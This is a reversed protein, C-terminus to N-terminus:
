FKQTSIITAFNMGEVERVQGNKENPAYYYRPKDGGAIIKWYAAPIPIGNNITKPQNYIAITVVYLTKNQQTAMNRTFIELDKWARRNLTPEQPTMNTMWFTDNSQQPTAADGAPTMHGKDFGTNVYDAPKPGGPVRPDARFADDRPPMPKNPAITTSTLIAAKHSPDFLIVYFSNCLEVTNAVELPKGGPYFQPCQSGFASTAVFVLLVLWRKM